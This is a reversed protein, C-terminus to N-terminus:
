FYMGFGAKIGLRSADVSSSSPFLSYDFAVPIIFKGKPDVYEFGASFGYVITASISEEDVFNQKKVSLFTCTVTQEWGFM